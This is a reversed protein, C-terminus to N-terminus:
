VEYMEKHAHGKEAKKIRKPPQYVGFDAAVKKMRHVIRLKSNRYPGDLLGLYDNAIKFADGDRIKLTTHNFHKRYENFLIADDRNLNDIKDQQDDIGDIVAKIVEGEKQAKIKRKAEARCKKSCFSSVRYPKAFFDNGCVDCKVKIRKSRKDALYCERKCFIQTGNKPAFEKGCESNQCIKM